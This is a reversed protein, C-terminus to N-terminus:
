LTVTVKICIKIKSNLKYYGDIYMIGPAIATITGWKTINVGAVSSEQCPVSWEYNVISTTPFDISNPTSIPPFIWIKFNLLDNIVYCFYFICPLLM